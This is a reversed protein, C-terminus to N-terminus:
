QGTLLSVFGDIDAASVTGDGNVDANDYRCDPFAAAYADAGGTLAVVFPDIDAATVLGDCNLDGALPWVHPLVHGNGDYDLVWLLYGDRYGDADDEDEQNLVGIVDVPGDPMAFDTFGAGRGLWVTLTRGTTDFALMTADPGWPESQAADFQLGNIRVLEGQYREPGTLRTADFLFADDVSKLDALTLVTPAPLGYGAELLVVDFDNAPDNTHRENVNTKGGYHLGPARARIEVLDGPAFAHGTAPDHNLRDLEALWEVDSYSRGPPVFPLNSYLQGMWCATGGFDDADVSQVYVQWQGGLFAPASPTTDLMLAPDHLLVGRLKVPGDDLPFTGFGDADVAQLDAHRTYPLAGWDPEDAGASAALVLLGVGLYQFYNRMRMM